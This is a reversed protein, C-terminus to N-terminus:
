ELNVQIIRPSSHICLIELRDTGSNKFRHPAEASVVVIDGPVAELDDGHTSRWRGSLLIWTESYPHTHLDPGEGPGNRVHFFSVESGFPEGEFTVTGGPSPRLEGARIVRHM